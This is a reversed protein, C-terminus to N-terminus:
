KVRNIEDSRLCRYAGLPLNGDLVITGISERHLSTVRNGVAHFMRKIQHYKGEYIVVRAENSSLVELHAPLTTMDEYAFYFGKEFAAVTEIGIEVETTVIYAKAIVKTPETLMRSWQGDNTLIMLGTSEKDLRGALHLTNAYEEDILDIVTKHEPDTTASVVGAPKHLMIYHAEKSQVLKGDLEIELFQHVEFLSDRIVEANVVVSGRAIMLRASSKGCQCYKQIWKDLRM